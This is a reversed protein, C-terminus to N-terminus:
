AVIFFSKVIAANKHAQVKVCCAWDSWEGLSSVLMATFSDTKTRSLSFAMTDISSMFDYNKWLEILLPIRDVVVPNKMECM